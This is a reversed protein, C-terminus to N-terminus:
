QSQRGRCGPVHSHASVSDTDPHLREPINSRLDVHGSFVQTNDSFHAYLPNRLLVICM